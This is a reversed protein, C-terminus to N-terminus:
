SGLLAPGCWVAGCGKGTVGAHQRNHRPRLRDPLPFPSTALPLQLSLPFPPCLTSQVTGQSCVIVSTKTDARRLLVIFALFAPCISLFLCPGFPSSATHGLPAPPLGSSLSYVSSEATQARAKLMRLRPSLFDLGHFFYISRFLHLPIAHISPPFRLIKLIASAGCRLSCADYAPGRTESCVSRFNLTPRATLPISSLCHSPSRTMGEWVQGEM